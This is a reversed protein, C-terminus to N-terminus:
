GDLRNAGCYCVNDDINLVLVTMIKDKDGDRENNYQKIMSKTREMTMGYVMANM